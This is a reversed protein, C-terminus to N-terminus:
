QALGYISATITGTTYTFPTAGSSVLLVAGTSATIPPQMNAHWDCYGSAPLLQFGLVNGATLTASTNGGTATVTDKSTDFPATGQAYAATMALSLALATMTRIIM